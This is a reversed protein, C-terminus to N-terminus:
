KINKKIWALVAKRQAETPQASDKPPMKKQEMERAMHKWLKTNKKADAETVPSKILKGDAPYDGSHCSVCFKQIVPAVKTDFESKKPKSKTQASVELPNLMTVALAVACTGSLVLLKKM